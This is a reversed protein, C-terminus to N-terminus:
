SRRDQQRMIPECTVNTDTKISCATGKCFSPKTPENRMFVAAFRYFIAAATNACYVDNRRGLARPMCFMWKLLDGSKRMM